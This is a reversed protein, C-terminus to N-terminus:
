GVKGGGGVRRRLCEQSGEPCKRYSRANLRHGQERVFDIDSLLAISGVTKVTRISCCLMALDHVLAKCEQVNCITHDTYFIKELDIVCWIPVSRAPYPHNSRIDFVSDSAGDGPPPM